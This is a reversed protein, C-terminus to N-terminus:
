RSYKALKSALSSFRRGRLGFIGGWVVLCPFEGVPSKKPNAVLEDYKLYRTAKADQWGVKVCFKDWVKGGSTPSGFEQWIKKQISFGFKGNSHKVWLRDITLLDTYPFNRLEDPTFYNGREKGVARIMTNYTEEDAERWKGDRLLDRLKRYDIGKESSLDDEQAAQPIVSPSTPPAWGVPTDTAVAQLPLTHAIDVSAPFHTRLTNFFRAPPLKGNTADATQLAAVSLWRRGEILIPYIPKKLELALSLECQVWHSAESRPTMVVVFVQCQELQDQIVRPWTTGYDIRDDLWVPLNHTELAQALLSVYAQDQRSYSIFIFSM